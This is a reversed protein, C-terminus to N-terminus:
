FLEKEDFVGKQIEAKDFLEPQSIHDAFRKEQAAYYDADLECGEFDFGLDHCAIRISGSGVHSDFITQGPKAFRSLIWNYLETPKQTPHIRKNRHDGSCIQLDFIRMTGHDFSTWIFEGDAFHMGRIIKNWVVPAKCNGLYELFYNGGFVIQNRSVRRLIKFYNEDPVHDWQNAKEAEQASLSNGGTHNWKLGYPPDVIALDYTKDPLGRMFDMCDCLHVINKM